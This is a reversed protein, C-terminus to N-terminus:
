HLVLNRFLAVIKFTMETEKLQQTFLKTSLFQYSTHKQRKPQVIVFM